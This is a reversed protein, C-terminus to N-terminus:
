VTVDPSRAEDAVRLVEERHQVPILPREPFRQELYGCMEASEQVVLIVCRGADARRCDLRM